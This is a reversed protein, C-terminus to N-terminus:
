FGYVDVTVDFTSELTTTDFATFRGIKTYIGVFLTQVLAYQKLFFRCIAHVTRQFVGTFEMMECSHKHYAFVQNTIPDKVPFYTRNLTLIMQASFMILFGHFHLPWNVSYVKQRYNKYAFKWVGHVMCICTSIIADNLDLTCVAQSKTSQAFSSLRKLM